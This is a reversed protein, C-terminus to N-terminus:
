INTSQSCQKVKMISVANWVWDAVKAVSLSVFICQSRHCHVSVNGYLMNDLLLIAYALFMVGM